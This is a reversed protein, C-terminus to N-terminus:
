YNLEAPIIVWYFYRMWTVHGHNEFCMNSSVIYTSDEHICSAAYVSNLCPGQLYHINGEIEQLWCVTGEM